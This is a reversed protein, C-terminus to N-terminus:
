NTQRCKSVICRIKNDIKWFDELVTKKMGPNMAIFDITRLIPNNLFLMSAISIFIFLKTFTNSIEILRIDM